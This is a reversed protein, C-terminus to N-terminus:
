SQLRPQYALFIVLSHSLIDHALLAELILKEFANLKLPCVRGPVTPLTSTDYFDNSCM